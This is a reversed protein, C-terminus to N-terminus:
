DQSKAQKAKQAQRGRSLLGGGGIGGGVGGAIGGAIGGGHRFLLPHIFLEFLDGGVDFAKAVGM